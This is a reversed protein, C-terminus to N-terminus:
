FSERLAEAGSVVELIEKTIAAQRAKNYSLQLFSILENANNTASDMATMRAAQEAANSELLIRWMQTNLQRPLLYNIIEIASPEVIYNPRYHSEPEKDKKQASEEKESSDLSKIPLFQEEVIKSQMVSKFENYVTIIRDFKRERYGSIMDSVIEKAAEFNLGDFIGTYKAYVDFDRKSFFDFSKKGIAIITLNGNSHYESYKDYILSHAAKILNTNFSGCLGRDSSVVALAIRKTEREKLLDNDLDEIAPLIFKITADIKRAYPRAALIAEQAKRFKVAAVMKM